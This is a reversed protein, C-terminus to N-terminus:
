VKNSMKLIETMCSMIRIGLLAFYTSTFYFQLANEYISQFIDTTLSKYYGKYLYIKVTKFKIYNSKGGEWLCHVHNTM